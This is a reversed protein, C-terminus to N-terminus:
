GVKDKISGLAAQYSLGMLHNLREVM